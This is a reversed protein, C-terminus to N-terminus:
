LKMAMAKRCLDEALLPYEKRCSDAYAFLALRAHKDHTLDLVFYECHQHKAGVASGGDNRYVTYKDYLGKSKDNM